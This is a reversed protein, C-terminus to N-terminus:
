LSKENKKRDTCKFLGQVVCTQTSLENKVQILIAVFFVADEDVLSNESHFVCTDRRLTGFSLVICPLAKAVGVVCLSIYSKM